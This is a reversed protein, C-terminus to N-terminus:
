EKDGQAYDAVEGVLLLLEMELERRVSGCFRRHHERVLDLFALVDEAKLARATEDGLRM